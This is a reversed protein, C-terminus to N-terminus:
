SFWQWGLVRVLKEPWAASKRMDWIKYIACSEFITTALRFESCNNKSYNKKRMKQANQSIWLGSTTATALNVALSVTTMRLGDETQCNTPSRALKRWLWVIKMNCQEELLEREIINVLFDISLSKPSQRLLRLLTCLYSARWKPLARCSERHETQM